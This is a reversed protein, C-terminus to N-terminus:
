RQLANLVVWGCVIGEEEESETDLGDGMMEERQPTLEHVEYRRRNFNRAVVLCQGAARRRFPDSM